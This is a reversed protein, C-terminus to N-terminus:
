KQIASNLRDRIAEMEQMTHSVTNIELEGGTIANYVTAVVWVEDEIVFAWRKQIDRISCEAIKAKGAENFHIQLLVTKDDNVDKRVSVSEIDAITVIPHTDIFFTDDRDKDYWEVVTKNPTLPYIGTGLDVTERQAFTLTSQFFVLLLLLIKQM